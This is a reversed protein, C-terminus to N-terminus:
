FVSGYSLDVICNKAYIAGGELGANHKFTGGIVNLTASLCQIGGGVGWTTVSNVFRSGSDITVTAGSRISM